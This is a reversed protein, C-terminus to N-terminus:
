FFDARHLSASPLAARAADLHAPNLEWGHLAADRHQSRAAVLFAGVGCTPEVIAAPSPHHPALRALCARALDPPTQWDGYTVRHAPQSPPM